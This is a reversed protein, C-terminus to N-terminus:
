DPMLEIGTLSSGLAVKLNRRRLIEEIGFLTPVLNRRTAQAGGHGIRLTKGAFSGLGGILRIDYLRLLDAIIEDPSVDGCGINTVVNMLYDRNGVVQLGMAEIGSRVAEACRRHRMFRAELGEELVGRLAERLAKVGSVSHTIPQPHWDRWDRAYRTWTGLDLYWGGARAKSHGEIWDLAGQSLGAVSLGPPAELCKQAASACLDVGWGDMDLEEGGLSSVADTMLLVGFETCVRAIDPLPNLIACSTEGHVCAFLEISRDHELVEGIRDPDLPEGEDAEVVEVTPDYSRAMELLRQGFFGNVGIAARRCRRLATSLCAEVAASGSGVLVFTEGSTRFIEKLLSRVDDYLEIWESGFHPLVPSSLEGLVQPRVSVPGPIMLLEDGKM